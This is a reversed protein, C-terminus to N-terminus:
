FVLFNYSLLVLKKLYFIIATMNGKKIQEKLKSEVFEHCRVDINEVAEAYEPDDKVWEYHTNRSMGVQICAESVNGLTKTLAEIMAKKKVKTSTGKKLKDKKTRM